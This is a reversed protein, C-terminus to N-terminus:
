ILLLTLLQLQFLLLLLHVCHHSVQCSVGAPRQQQGVMRLVRDFFVFSTSM